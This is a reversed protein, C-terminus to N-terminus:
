AEEDEATAAAATLAKFRAELQEDTLADFSHEVKHEVKASDTWGPEGPRERGPGVRLWFEPNTRKVELEATLRAQARAQEVKERFERFRPRQDSMWRHFTSQGVGAAQAAVWVFGGARVSAVILAEVKDTLKPPRGGKGM